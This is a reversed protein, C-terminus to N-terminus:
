EKEELGIKTVRLDAVKKGKNAGYDEERIGRMEVEVVLKYKGDITWSKIEPLYEDSICITPRPDYTRGKESNFSEEKATSKLTKLGPAKKM